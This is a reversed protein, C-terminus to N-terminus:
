PVKWILQYKRYFFAYGLRFLITEANCWKFRKNATFNLQSEFNNSFNEKCYTQKNTAIKPKQHHYTSLMLMMATKITLQFENLTHDLQYGKSNCSTTPQLKTSKSPKYLPLLILTAEKTKGINIEACM